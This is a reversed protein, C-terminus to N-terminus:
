AQEEVMGTFARRWGPSLAPVEALAAADDRNELHGYMLQFTYRVSFNPHPREMLMVQQGAEIYGENLVRHYWGGWARAEVRAALDKIGARRALKWCPARPQTVQVRVEGIAYVDGICVTDEDLGTVTLNEGFIGFPLAPQHLEARWVPYHEASYALVARFPGGHNKLDAQGDGALNLTDLWVPGAVPSKFIGSDWSKDSITDAGHTTPMGVQLSVIQSTITM